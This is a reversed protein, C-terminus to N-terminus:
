DYSRRRQYKDTEAKLVIGESRDGDVTAGSRSSELSREVPRRVFLSSFEAVLQENSLTTSQRHVKLLDYSLSEKCPSFSPCSQIRPTVARPTNPASGYREALQRFHNMRRAIETHPSLPPTDFKLDQSRDRHGRPTLTTSRSSRPPSRPSYCSDEEDTNLTLASGTNIVLPTLVPRSKTPTTIEFM